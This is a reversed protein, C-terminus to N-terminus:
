TSFLLFVPSQSVRNQPIQAEALDSPYAERNV